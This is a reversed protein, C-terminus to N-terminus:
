MNGQWGVAGGQGGQRWHYLRQGMKCGQGTSYVDGGLDRDAEGGAEGAEAGRQMEARGRPGTM